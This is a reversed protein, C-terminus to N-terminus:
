FGANKQRGCKYGGQDIPKNSSNTPINNNAASVDLVWKNSGLDGEVRAKIICGPTLYLNEDKGNGSLIKVKVKYACSAPITFKNYNGQPVNRDFKKDLGPCKPHTLPGAPQSDRAEVSNWDLTFSGASAVVIVGCIADKGECSAHIYESELSSAAHAPALAVGSSAIMGAAIAGGLLKLKTSM